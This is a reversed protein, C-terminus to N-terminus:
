AKAAWRPSPRRGATWGPRWTTAASAPWRAAARPCWPPPTTRAAPASSRSASSWPRGRRPTRRATLFEVRRRIGEHDFFKLLRRGIVVAIRAPSLENYSPLMERAEEDFKGVVRPRVDPHWNYLQEKLQNEILARKEEVVVIEELGQAFQRIGERELPWAMAVKYVTLGIDAAMEESINLDDLAQRVDLYSKGTTVM